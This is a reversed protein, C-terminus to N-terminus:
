LPVDYLIIHDVTRLITRAFKNKTGNALDTNIRIGVVSSCNKVDSNRTRKESVESDLGKNITRL